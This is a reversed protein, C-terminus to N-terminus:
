QDGNGSRCPLADPEDHLPGLPLNGLRWGTPGDQRALVTSGVRIPAVVSSSWGPMRGDSLIAVPGGNLTSGRSNLATLRATGVLNLRGRITTGETVTIGCGFGLTM